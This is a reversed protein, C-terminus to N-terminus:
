DQGDGSGGTDCTTGTVRDGVDVPLTGAPTVRGVLAEAVAQLQAPTDGFAALRVPADVAALAYPTDLAVAADASGASSGGARESAAEEPMSGDEVEGAAYDGGDVLRVTAGGTGERVGVQRLAATLGARQSATGGVVRARDGADLAHVECSGLSTLSARALRRAPDEGADLVSAPPQEGVQLSAAVVHAAAERLREEPLTGDQVAEVVAARAAQPDPPLLLLDAGALLAAVSRDHGTTAEATDLAGMNLADTVVLPDAGDERLHGLLAASLSAPLRDVAPVAIHGTMVPLDHEALARFPVLDRETLEQWTADTSPLGHHSDSELGGHGPFHKAVPVIGAARYGEALATAVRAVRQPDAGPSRVGITPDQPGATVDADPAFVMTFGLARLQEGSLRAIERSLEGDAAAGHAMAAPLPTVPEEIRRVPGGEQDVGVVAPWTRGSREQARQVQATVRPLAAPDDPVNSDFLIVGGFGEGVLRDANRGSSGEYGAVIVQGALARTDLDAVLEEARAVADDWALDPGTAQPSPDGSSDSSPDHPSSSPSSSGSSSPTEGPTPGAAESSPAGSGSSPAPGPGSGSCGVLLAGALVPAVVHGWRM